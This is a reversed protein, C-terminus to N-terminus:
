SRYAKKTTSKPSQLITSILENFFVFSEGVGADEEFLMLLLSRGLTIRGATIM